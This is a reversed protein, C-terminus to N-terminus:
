QEHRCLKQNKLRKQCFVCKQVDFPITRLPRKQITETLLVGTRIKTYKIKYSTINKSSTYTKYCNKHWKLHDQEKLDNFNLFIHLASADKGQCINM